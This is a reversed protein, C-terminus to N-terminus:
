RDMIRKKFYHINRLLIWLQEFEKHYKKNWWDVMTLVEIRLKEDEFRLCETLDSPWFYSNGEHQAKAKLRGDRYRGVEMKMLLRKRCYYDDESYTKMGARTLTNCCESTVQKYM